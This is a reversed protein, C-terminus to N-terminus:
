AKDGFLLRRLGSFFHAIVLVTGRRLFYRGSSQHLQGGRELRVLRADLMESVGYLAMLRETSVAQPHHRHIERIMRIRLSSVNLNIVNFFCFGLFAYALIVLAGYGADDELGLGASRLLFILSIGSAALGLGFSVFQRRVHGISLPLRCLLAQALIDVALGLLPILALAPHLSIM